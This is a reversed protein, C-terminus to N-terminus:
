FKALLIPSYQCESPCECKPPFSGDDFRIPQYERRGKHACTRTNRGTTCNYGIGMGTDLEHIGSAIDKHSALASERLDLFRQEEDDDIFRLVSVKKHSALVQAIREYVLRHLTRPCPKTFHFLQPDNRGRSNKWGHAPRGPLAFVIENLYPLTELFEYTLPHPGGIFIKFFKLYAGFDMQISIKRIGDRMTAYRRLSPYMKPYNRYKQALASTTKDVPVSDDEVMQYFQGLRTICDNLHGYSLVALCLGHTSAMISGGEICLRLAITRVQKSVALLGYWDGLQDVVEYPGPEGHSAPQRRYQRLATMYRGQQEYAQHMCFSLIHEKIETPLGSWNFSPSTDVEDAWSWHTDLYSSSVQVPSPARASM